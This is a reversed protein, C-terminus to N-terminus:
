KMFLFYTLEKVYIITISYEHIKNWQKILEEILYFIETRVISHSTCPNDEKAPSISCNLIVSNTGMSKM